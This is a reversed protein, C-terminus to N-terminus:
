GLINYCSPMTINFIFTSTIINIFIIIGILGLEITIVIAIIV